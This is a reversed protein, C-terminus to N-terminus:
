LKTIQRYDPSEKRSLHWLWFVTQEPLRQLRKATEQSIYADPLYIPHAKLIEEIYKRKKEASAAAIGKQESL